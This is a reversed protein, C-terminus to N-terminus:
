RGGTQPMRGSSSMTATKTWRWRRCSSIAMPPPPTLWRSVESPFLAPDRRLHHQGIHERLDPWCQGDRHGHRRHGAALYLGTNSLTGGGSLSWNIGPQSSMPQGFQDQETATFQSLNNAPLSPNAPTILISTATQRVQVTVSSTATLGGADTITVQLTYTGAAAFTATTNKAGNTGNASFAVSAPAIGSALWTYRLNSQGGDDAGLVSLVTSTGTVSNPSAVAATAVTPAANTVTIAASGSIAGSSATITALGPSGSGPATYLGTTGTTGVGTNSWSFSPQLTMAVGFQDYAVATFQQTANEHLSASGPTVVISTLAPSVTVAVSSTTTLGGADTITVKFNYTGAKAFTATTNKSVNTGNASFTVAAPPSGTTAWTYSLNSEGGDDAGLVSLATTTGTM